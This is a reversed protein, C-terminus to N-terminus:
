RYKKKRKNSRAKQTEEFVRGTYRRVAKNSFLEDAITQKRDKKSLRASKFENNGEIITGLQFEKPIERRSDSKKYFRKPDAFSRMKIVELDRQIEPTMKPTIFPRSVDYPLSHKRGDKQKKGSHLAYNSKELLEKEVQGGELLHNARNDQDVSQSALSNQSTASDGYVNQTANSILRRLKRNSSPFSDTEEMREITPSLSSQIVTRFEPKNMIWAGRVPPAQVTSTKKRKKVNKKKSIQPKKAGKSKDTNASARLKAVRSSRRVMSKLIEYLGIFYILDRHFPM